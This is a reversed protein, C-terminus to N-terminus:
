WRLTAGALLTTGRSISGKGRRCGVDIDFGDRAALIAGLGLSKQWTGRAPDPDSDAAAEAALRLTPTAGWLLAVSAHWLARREGIRPNRAYGINGHWATDAADLSAVLVGHVSAKGAGFGKDASATPLDIGARVGLTLAGADHFRWKVDIASDGLGRQQSDTSRQELWQLRAAIDVSDGVGYSLQPAYEWSRDVGDHQRQFANELEFKGRGQTGTDETVLPHAGLSPGSTVLVSALTLARRWAECSTRENRWAM